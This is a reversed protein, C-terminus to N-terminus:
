RWVQCNLGCSSISTTCVYMCAYLTIHVKIACRNCLTVATLVSIYANDSVAVYVTNIVHDNYEPQHSCKVHDIGYEM